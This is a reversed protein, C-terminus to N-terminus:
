IDDHITIRQKMNKVMKGTTTAEWQEDDLDCERSKWRV